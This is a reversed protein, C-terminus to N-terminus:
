VSDVVLSIGDFLLLLCVNILPHHFFNTIISVGNIRQGMGIARCSETLFYSKAHIYM